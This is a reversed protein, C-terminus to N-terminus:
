EETKDGKEEVTEEVEETEPAPEETRVKKSEDFLEETEANTEVPAPIEEIVEKKEPVADTEGICEKELRFYSKGSSESGTEIVFTNDEDCVEVVTGCIGGITKVKSGPKIANRTDIIQQQREQQAKMQKRSSYIMYAIVAIFLVLFTLTTPLNEKSFCGGGSPVGSSSSDTSTAETSTSLESTSLDETSLLEGDGTLLNFLM